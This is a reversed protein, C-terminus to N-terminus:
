EQAEVEARCRAPEFRARGGHEELTVGSHVWDRLLNNIGGAYAQKIYTAVLADAGKEDYVSLLHIAWPHNSSKRLALLLHDIDVVASGKVTINFAVTRKAM